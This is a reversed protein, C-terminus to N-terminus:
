ARAANQTASENMHGLLEHAKQITVTKKTDQTVANVETGTTPGSRRLHAAFVLGEPTEICIDFIIKNNGKTIWIAESDGHLTWGDKQRKTLSFLNFMATPVHRVNHLKVQQLENGNNDTLTGRLDFLTTTKNSKGDGYIVGSDNNTAQRVNVAGVNHPTSDCTAATDAIWINPDELLKLTKPFSLASLLLEPGDSNGGGSGRGVAGIESGDVNTKKKCYKAADFWDPRKNKNKDLM